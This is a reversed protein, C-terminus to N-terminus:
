SWTSLIAREALVDLARHAAARGMKWVRAAKDVTFPRIPLLSVREAEKQRFLLRLIKYLLESPPAGQPFRNLRDALRTYASKVALHAM